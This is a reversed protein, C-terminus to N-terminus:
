KPLSAPASPAAAKAADRVWDFEFRQPQEKRGFFSISDTDSTTFLKDYSNTKWDRSYKIDIHNILNEAPTRQIKFGERLINQESITKVEQGSVSSSVNLPHFQLRAKGIADWFLRTRSEKMWRRWLNFLSTKTQVVGGFRYGGPVAAALSTGASDFSGTDLASSDQGLVTMLSWKFVHDPREILANSTGTLTGSADDVIGEVDASIKDTAALRQRAYEIEFATHIIFATRGDLSGNYKIRIEKNLFWSWDGNVQSTIDFHDVVTMTSKDTTGDLAPTLSVTENQGAKITALQQIANLNNHDYYM